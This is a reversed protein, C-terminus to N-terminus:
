PEPHTGSAAEARTASGEDLRMMKEAAELNADALIIRAWECGPETDFEFGLACMLGLFRLGYRCLDLHYQRCKARVEPMTDRCGKEGHLELIGPHRSRLFDLGTHSFSALELRDMKEHSYLQQNRLIPAAWPHQPSIDFDEGHIIETRAFQLILSEGSIGYRGCKIVAKEVLACLGAKGLPECKEPMEATLTEMAQRVFRDEFAKEFAKMQERRIILM